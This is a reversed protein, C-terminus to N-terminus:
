FQQNNLMETRKNVLDQVARAQNMLDPVETIPVTTPLPINPMTDEKPEDAAALAPKEKVRGLLNDIKDNSISQVINANPDTEVVINPMNPNPQTSFQWVGDSDKWRYFVGAKQPIPTQQNRPDIVYVKPQKKTPSEKSWSIWADQDNGSLEKPPSKPIPSSFSPLKLDSLSMFPQGNPGKMIFPGALAAVVMFMMLRVFIKM